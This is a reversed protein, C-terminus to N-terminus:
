YDLKGNYLMKEANFTFTTHGWPTELVIKKDDAQIIPKGNVVRPFVLDPGPAPMHPSDAPFPCPSIANQQADMLAPIRGASVDLYPTEVRAWTLGDARLIIRDGFKLGLCAVAMEDFEQKEQPKM